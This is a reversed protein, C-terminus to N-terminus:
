CQSNYSLLNPMIQCVLLDGTQNGTLACASTEPWTGLQPHALLLCAMSTEKYTSTKRGRKRGRKGTQFYIFLTKSFIIQPPLYLLEIFSQLTFQAFLLRTENNMQYLMHSLGQVALNCLGPKLEFHGNVRQIQM